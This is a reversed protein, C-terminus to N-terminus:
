PQRRSKDQRQRASALAEHYGLDPNPEAPPQVAAAVMDRLENLDFPKPLYDDAGAAIADHARDSQSMASTVIIHVREMGPLARVARCVEVGTLGPMMWDLVMVDPVASEATALVATGDDEATVEHGAAKLKRCIVDRMSPDDDAVLVKAVAVEKPVM